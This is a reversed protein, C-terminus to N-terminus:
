FIHSIVKKNLDSRSLIGDNFQDLYKKQLQLIITKPKPNGNSWLFYNSGLDARVVIFEEPKLRLTHGYSIILESLEENIKNIKENTKEKIKGADTEGPVGYTYAIAKEVDNQIVFSFSTSDSAGWFHNLPVHLFFIAGLGDLYMGQSASSGSFQTLQIGRDMIETMIQIDKSVASDRSSVLFQINNKIDNSVSENEAKRDLRSKSIWGSLFAHNQDTLEWGELNIIVAIRDDKKLQGIARAYDNFFKFLEDKLDQLREEEQLINQQKYQDLERALEMRYKEEEVVQAQKEAVKKISDVQARIELIVEKQEKDGTKIKSVIRRSRDKDGKVIKLGQAMNFFAVHEAPRPQCAHFIIGYQPLYFGNTKCQSYLEFSDNKLLKNLIGEMIRLDRNMRARNVSPTQSFGLCSAHIIFLLLFVFKLKNMIKNEGIHDSM